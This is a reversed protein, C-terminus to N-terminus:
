VIKIGQPTPEKTTAGLPALGERATLAASQTGAKGSFVLPSILMGMDTEKFTCAPRNKEDFLKRTPQTFTKRELEDNLYNLQDTQDVPHPGQGKPLYLNAPEVVTSSLYSYPYVLKMQGCQVSRDRTRNFHKQTGYGALKGLKPVRQGISDPQAVGMGM